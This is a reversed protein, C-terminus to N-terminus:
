TRHDSIRFSLEVDDQIEKWFAWGRLIEDVVILNLGHGLAKRTRVVSRIAALSEACALERDKLWSKEVKRPKEIRVDIAGLRPFYTFPTTDDESNYEALRPLLMVCDGIYISLREVVRAGAFAGWWVESDLYARAAEHELAITRVTQLPIAITGDHWSCSDPSCELDFNFAILSSAGPMDAYTELEESMPASMPWNRELSSPWDESNHTVFAKEGLLLHLPPSQHRYATQIASSILSLAIQGVDSNISWGTNTSSSVLVDLHIDHRIDLYTLLTLFELEQSPRPEVSLLSLSRLTSPVAISQYVVGPEVIPFVDQIELTKLLTLHLLADTFERMTPMIGKSYATWALLVLRELCPSFFPADWSSPLCNELELDTIYSSSCLGVPLSPFTEGNDLDMAVSLKRLSLFFHRFYDEFLRFTEITLSRVHLEQIREALATAIYRRRPQCRIKELALGHLDVRLPINKTRALSLSLLSPQIAFHDALDIWLQPANLAIKRWRACVHTVVIWGSSCYNKRAPANGLGPQESVSERRRSEEVQSGKVFEFIACVVESDAYYLLSPAIQQNRLTASLIPDEDARAAHTRLLHSLPASM